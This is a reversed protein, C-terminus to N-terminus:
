AGVSNEQEPEWELDRILESDEVKPRVLEGDHRLVLDEDPAGHGNGNGNARVWDGIAPGIIQAIREAGAPRQSNELACWITLCLGDYETLNEHVIPYELKWLRLAQLEQTVRTAARRRSTSDSLKMHAFRFTSANDHLTAQVEEFSKANAIEQAMDRAHIKDRIVSRANRAASFISTRAALFEHYELWHIGLTIALILAAVGVLTAIVTAEPPAFTILL